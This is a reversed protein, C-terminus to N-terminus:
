IYAERMTNWIRIQLRDSYRFGYKKCLEIVIKSKKELTNKDSALPMLYIKDKDLRFEDILQLVEEVDREDSVVFKFISNNIRNFYRIADENIRENYDLGSNSLKISVNYFVKGHHKKPKITGNTEIEILDFLNAVKEILSFVGEEQLLPEGGTIVLHKPNYINLLNIIKNIIDKLELEEFTYWAYKTDCYKCRLNCGHLRLFIAPTGLFKGEGQISCFIEVVRM